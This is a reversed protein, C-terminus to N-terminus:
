SAHAQTAQTANAYEAPAFFVLVTLDEAISHFCHEVEAAVFVIGGPGVAQHEDGVQISARGGVVCYVEDETHPKQKDQAGAPLVYLGMSLSSTRLFELYSRESEDRAAVLQPLEFIDM